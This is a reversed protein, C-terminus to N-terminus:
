QKKRKIRRICDVISYIMLPMFILSSYENFAFPEKIIGSIFLSFVFLVFLGYYPILSRRDLKGKSIYELDETFVKCDSDLTGTMFLIGSIIFIVCPIFSAFNSALNFNVIVDQYMWSVAMWIFALVTPLIMTGAIYEKMTRGKSIHALWRSVTPTWSLFWFIWSASTAGQFYEKWFAGTIGGTIPTFTFDAFPTSLVALFAFVFVLFALKSMGKLLNNRASIMAAMVTLAALLFKLGPFDLGIFRAVTNMGTWLSISMGLVTSLMAALKGIKSDMHKMYWLGMVSYLAWVPAGNLLAVMTISEVPNLGQEIYGVLDGPAYMLAVGTGAVFVGAIWTGLSWPKESTKSDLEIREGKANKSKCVFFLVLCIIISIVTTLAGVFYVIKNTIDM